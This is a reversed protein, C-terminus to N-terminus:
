KGSQGSAWQCADHHADSFWSHSCNDKLATTAVPDGMCQFILKRDTSANYTDTASSAPLAGCFSPDNAFSPLKCLERRKVLDEYTGSIRTWELVEWCEQPPLPSQSREVKELSEESFPACRARLATLRKENNEREEKQQSFLRSRENAAKKARADAKEIEETVCAASLSAPLNTVDFSVVRATKQYPTYEFYFTKAVKM